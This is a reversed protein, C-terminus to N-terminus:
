IWEMLKAHDAPDINQHFIVLTEAESSTFSAEKCDISKIFHAFDSAFQRQQPSTFRNKYYGNITKLSTGLAHAFELVTLDTLKRGKMKTYWGDAVIGKAVRIKELHYEECPVIDEWYDDWDKEVRAVREEKERRFSNEDDQSEPRHESHLARQHSSLPASQLSSPWPSTQPAPWSSSQHAPWSSSQHAPWSSSPHASSNWSKGQKWTEEQQKEELWKEERRKEWDHRTEEQRKEELWKEEQKKWDRQNEEWQHEEWQKEEQSKEWDQRQKEWQKEKQSKEWNLRKEERWKEERWKEERQEEWQKEEQMKEERWKEELWKEERQEKWQKKWDQRKEEQWKEEQQEEWQKEDQRKEDQRKEDQRKEDATWTHNGASSDQLLQTIKRWFEEWEAPTSDNRPRDLLLHTVFTPFENVRCARVMADMQAEPTMTM